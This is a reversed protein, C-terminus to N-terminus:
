AGKALRDEVDAAFTTGGERRVSLIATPVSCPPSAGVARMTM